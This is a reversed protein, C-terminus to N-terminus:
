ALAVHTGHGSVQALAPLPIGALCQVAMAPDAVWNAIVPDPCGCLFDSTALAVPNDLDHFEAYFEAYPQLTAHVRLGEAVVTTNFPSARMWGWHAIGSGDSPGFGLNGDRETPLHFTQGAVDINHVLNWQMEPVPGLAAYTGTAEFPGPSWFERHDVAPEAQWQHGPPVTDFEGRLEGKTAGAPYMVGYVRVQASEIPTPLQVFGASPGQWVFVREDDETDIVLAGAVADADGRTDYFVGFGMSGSAGGDGLVPGYYTYWDPFPYDANGFVDTSFRDDAFTLCTWAPPVATRVDVLYPSDESPNCARITGNVVPCAAFSSLAPPAEAADVPLGANGACGAVALAFLALWARM